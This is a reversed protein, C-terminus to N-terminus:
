RANDGRNFFMQYLGFLGFLVALGTIIAYLRSSGDCTSVRGTAIANATFRRDIGHGDESFAKIRWEAATDPIFLIRGKADTRGTQLPLDADAPYLEYSEYAFPTGDPYSLTLRIAQTEDQALDLQHAPLDMALFLFLGCCFWSANRM